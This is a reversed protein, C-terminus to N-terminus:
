LGFKSSTTQKVLPLQDQWVVDGSDTEALRLHLIFSSQRVNGERMVEQKISGSLTFFPTRSITKQISEEVDYSGDMKQMLENASEREAQINRTQQDAVNNGTGYVASARVKGSNTLATLIENTLVEINQSETTDNRIRTVQIRAPQEPALELAGSNLLSNVMQQSMLKWDQLDMKNMSTAMQPSDATTLRQVKPQTTGCGALTFVAAAALIPLTRTM